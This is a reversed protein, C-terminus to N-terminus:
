LIYSQNNGWKDNGEDQVPPDCKNDQGCVWQDNATVDALNGILGIKMEILLLCLYLMRLFKKGIM